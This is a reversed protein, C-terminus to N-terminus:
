ESLDSDDKEELAKIKDRLIAADEYREELVALDLKQQLYTKGEVGNKNKTDFPTEIINVKIITGGNVYWILKEFLYGDEKYREIENPEGLNDESTDKLDDNVVHFNNLMNFLNDFDNIMNKDETLDVKRKKGFFKNFLSDFDERMNFKKKIKKIINKLIEFIKGVM